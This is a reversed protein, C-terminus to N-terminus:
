LKYYCVQVKKLAVSQGNLKCRAKYVVSFQGRGVKKEIDFNELRCYIADPPIANARAPPAMPRAFLDTAHPVNPGPPGMAGAAGVPIGGVFMPAAQAQEAYMGNDDCEMDQVASCVVKAESELLLKYVILM